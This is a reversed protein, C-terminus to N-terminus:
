ELNAHRTRMEEEPIGKEHIIHSITAELLMLTSLEFVTGMPMGVVKGYQEPSGIQLVSGAMDAITSSSKASILVIEAGLQKARKTYAIMTETEGSGSIVILLDGARISPTVIEGVVYVDYGGHMLRMAFFRAVLASRGAGAIFIRSAKDLIGTLKEEYSADTASLISTIKDIILQQHM